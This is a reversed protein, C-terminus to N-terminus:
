PQVVGNSRQGNGSGLGVSGQKEEASSSLEKAMCSVALAGGVWANGYRLRATCHWQRAADQRARVAGHMVGAASQRVLAQRPRALCHRQLVTCHWALGYGLRANGQRDGANSSMEEGVCCKAVGVSHQAEARRFPETCNRLMVANHWAPAMGPQGAGHRLTAKSHRAAGHSLWAEGAAESTWANGIRQPDM